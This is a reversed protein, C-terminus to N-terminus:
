EHVLFCTVKAETPKPLPQALVDTLIHVCRFCSDTLVNFSYGRVSAAVEVDDSFAQQRVDLQEGFSEARQVLFDIAKAILHAVPEALDVPAEEAQFRPHGSQLVM